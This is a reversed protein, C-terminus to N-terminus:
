LSLLSLSYAEAALRPNRRSDPLDAAELLARSAAELLVGTGAESLLALDRYRETHLVTRGAPDTGAAVADRLIRALLSFRDATASADDAALRGALVLAWGTGGSLFLGSAAELLADRSAREGALDLDVAEEEGTPRFAARSAAEEPSMGRAVLSAVLAERSPSPLRRLVLRSLITPPLLRPRAATLIFRARSPPEELVKLLASFAAAETRDVDLLVLVRLAAEYPNRFADSALARVLATPITTEKSASSEDFAPTNARRSAEPAAVLLDPHERRAVRRCDNCATSRDGSRCLLGAAIDLAEAELRRSGRGTLLLVPVDTM